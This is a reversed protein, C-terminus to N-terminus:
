EFENQIFLETSLVSQGSRNDAGRAFTSTIANGDLDGHACVEFGLATAGSGVCPGVGKAYNYQYYIPESM